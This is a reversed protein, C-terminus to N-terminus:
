MLIYPMDRNDFHFELVDPIAETLSVYKERVLETTLMMGGDYEPFDMDLEHITYYIYDVYGEKTDEPLLNDGTGEAIRMIVRNEPLYIFVDNFNSQTTNANNTNM